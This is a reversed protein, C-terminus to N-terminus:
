RIRAVRVTRDRSPIYLQYGFADKSLRVEYDCDGVSIRRYNAQKWVQDNDLFFYTQGSQPNKDCRVVRASYEPNDQRGPDVRELGVDDTLPQVNTEAAPAAAAEAAPADYGDGDASMTAATTGDVAAAVPAVSAAAAMPAAAPAPADAAESADAAEPADAAESADAAEPAVSAVADYCTLRADANDIARCQRVANEFAEDAMAAGPLAVTFVAAFVTFTTRMAQM